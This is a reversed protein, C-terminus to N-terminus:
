LREIKTIKNKDNIKLFLIYEGDESIDQSLEKFGYNYYFKIAKKNKKLCKLTLNFASIELIHDLLLKGIGRSQYQDEIYLHHVFGDEEWISIFGVVKENVTAVFITEDKTDEEFSTKFHSDDLWYFTQKRVDNYIESLKYNDKNEFKRINVNM